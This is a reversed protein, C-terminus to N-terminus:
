AKGIGSHLPSLHKELCVSLESMLLPKALFDDMGADLCKRSDHPHVDASIAVILRRSGGTEMARLIRTAEFGNMIPMQCDMLILDFHRGSAAQIAQAGHDATFVEFGIQNLLSATVTQNSANDEVLLASKGAYDSTGSESRIEPPPEPQVAPLKLWSLFTFTSGKGRESVVTVDGGMANALRKCITLGLGTGGFERTTSSDGQTFPQFLRSIGEPTIGIGTDKVSLSILADSGRREVCHLRLEVSGSKTFKIANNALNMVVQRFRTEDGVVWTRGGDAIDLTLSLRKDHAEKELIRKCVRVSEALNFSREELELKGAEIKSFDLIDSIIALLLDGSSKVLDLDGMQRPTLKSGTMLQIGGFIGNLPTRIEHSMTALFRSKELNSAEAAEKARELREEGSQQLFALLMSCSFLMVASTLSIAPSMIRYAWEEFHTPPIFWHGKLVLLIWFAVPQAVCFLISRWEAVRFLMLPSVLTFFFVNQISTQMGLSATFLYVNLNIAALLLHRSVTTLGLRNFQPIIGFFLTLPFVLHSLWIAGLGKFIWYYPFTMLVHGYAACNTILINRALRPNTDPAIGAHGLKRLLWRIGAPRPLMPTGRDGSGVRTDSHPIPQM